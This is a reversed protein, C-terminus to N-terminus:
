LVVSTIKNFFKRRNDRHLRLYLLYSHGRWRGWQMIDNKSFLEPHRDMEAPLAARFSHATIANEGPRYVDALLSKLTDNLKRVTLNQKSQFMFVPNDLSFTNAKLHLNMLRRLANVPCCPHPNIPFVDVFEGKCKSTKTSPVFLLIENDKLFKVNKWLLTSAVDFNRANSALIEGLRLSTFFALTCVSWITQKSIECWQTNALRHGILLLTSLTMVRRCTVNPNEIDKLNEAGNLILKLLRDTSYKVCDLGKLAHALEMSYMYSKTTQVSVKRVATCYTAFARFDEVKLPLDVNDMGAYSIFDKWARWGTCYKSWTSDALSISILNKFLECLSNDETATDGLCLTSDLLSILENVRNKSYKEAPGVISNL